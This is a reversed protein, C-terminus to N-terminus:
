AMQLKLDQLEKKSLHTCKIIDEDAMKSKVMEKAVQLIGQSRGIDIGQKKGEAREKDANERIVKRLFKGFNSMTNGGEIIKKLRKKIEEIEEDTLGRFIKPNIIEANEVILRVATRERENIEGQEEMKRIAYDMEEMTKIKEYAM